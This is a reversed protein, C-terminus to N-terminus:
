CKTPNSTGRKGTLYNRLKCEFVKEAHKFAQKIRTGNNAFWVSARANITETNNRTKSATAEVGTSSLPPSTSTLPSTVILDGGNLFTVKKEGNAYVKMIALMYLTKLDPSFAVYPTMFAVANVGSNRTIKEMQQESISKSSQSLSVSKDDNRLWSVEAAANKGLRLFVPPSSAFNMQDQYPVLAKLATKRSKRQGAMLSARGGPGGGIGEFPHMRILQRPNLVKIEQPAKQIILKGSNLAEVYSSNM